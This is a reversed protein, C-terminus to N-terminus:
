CEKAMDVIKKLRHNVGSRSITNGLIECLETLSSDPNNMRAQAVVRLNPPLGEMGMKAVLKEIAKLQMGSANITKTINATECNVKRNILNRVDREVKVDMLNFAASTAGFLNLLDEIQESVKFYIVYESKRRAMKPKLSKNELLSYLDMGLSKYYTCFELHYERNPDSIWGCSLFAGRVFAVTCCPKKIYELDIRVGEDVIIPLSRGIKQMDQNDRILVGYKGKYGQITAEVGTNRKLLKLFFSIFIENESILRIEEQSIRAAFLLIGYLLARHCCPKLNKKQLCLDNKVM